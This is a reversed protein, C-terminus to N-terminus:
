RYLQHDNIYQLVRPDLMRSVDEGSMIGERVATSSIPGVYDPSILSRCRYKAQYEIYKEKISCYDSEDRPAVLITTHDFIYQFDHWKDLTLYMDAGVILYLEDDDCLLSAVTDATYSMGGRRLEIDSVELVPYDQTALRCMNYRHEGPIIHSNDKLPTAYTPIFTVLDLACRSVFGLALAIHDNHVPNFSGGFIAHKM